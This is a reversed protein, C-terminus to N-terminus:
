LSANASPIETVSQSNPRTVATTMAAPHTSVAVPRRNQTRLGRNKSKSPWGPQRQTQAGAEDGNSEPVLGPSYRRKRLPVLGPSYRRKRLPVLGPSNPPWSVHPRIHTIGTDRADNGSLTARLEWTFREFM